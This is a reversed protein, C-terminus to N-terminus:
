GKKVLDVYQALDKMDSMTYVKDKCGCNRIIGAMTKGAGVEAIKLNDNQMMLDISKKWLVMHCCQDKIDKIVDAASHGYDGSCNLIIKYKPDNITLTDVYDCFAKEMEAMYSTHFACSVNGRQVKFVKEKMFQEAAYAMTDEPGGVVIQTETNILAVEPKGKEPPIAAIVREVDELKLGLIYYLISSTKMESMLRSREVVLKFVDETSMAGSAALASFQGLSQGMVLDPEVGRNTLLKLFALNMATVVIQTNRTQALVEESQYTCLDIVDLHSCDSALELVDKVEGLNTGLMRIMGPRQTGQGPFVFVNM